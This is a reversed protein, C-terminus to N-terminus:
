ARGKSEKRRPKLAAKAISDVATLFYGERQSLVRAVSEGTLEVHHRHLDIARSAERALVAKMLNEHEDRVNRPVVKVKVAFRRYRESQDFLQSCTGVIRPYTCAAILAMHFAKHLGTWQEGVALGSEAIKKEHQSLRYHAAVIAAEWQDDGHQIADGLADCEVLVRLRTIDRLDSALLPAARFGRNEEFQVLGEVTLRNLAERVPTSSLALAAQLAEVRLKTGPALEGLLIRSRITAYARESQAGRAENHVGVDAQPDPLPM